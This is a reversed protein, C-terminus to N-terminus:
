APRRPTPAESRTTSASTPPPLTVAAAQSANAQVLLAGALAAVGVAAGVVKRPTTNMLHSM